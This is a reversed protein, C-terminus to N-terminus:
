FTGADSDIRVGFRRTDGPAVEVVGPKDKLEGTFGEPDAVGQWPEICLYGAGPKTWIGLLPMFPFSVRVARTGPAGFTVHRSALRDFILADDEFLADAVDLLDGVVPTPQPEPRLLQDAGIRRIPALEDTEFRVRHLARDGGYPLPWRLAPHFGFSAPLPRDGPNHLLADVALAGGEIAFRIDLRFAFPYSTRTEGDAELRFTVADAAQEAVEFRRHRAFGHKAMPYSRGDVRVEGGNVCGIVPFLIPARGTWFAPDGDWLLDRGDEDQLRHLEAGHPSIEASLRPGAIRVPAPDSM